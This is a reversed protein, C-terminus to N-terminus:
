EIKTGCNHCYKDIYKFHNGCAGCAIDRMYKPEHEDMIFHLKHPEEKDALEQLEKLEEDCTEIMHDEFYEKIWNLSEQYKNM